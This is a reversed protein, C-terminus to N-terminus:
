VRTLFNELDMFFLGRRGYPRLLRILNKCLPAGECLTVCLGRECCGAICVSHLPAERPNNAYIM